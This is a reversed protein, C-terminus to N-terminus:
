CNANVSENSRLTFDRFYEESATTDGFAENFVKGRQYACHFRDLEIGAEDAVAGLVRREGLAEMGVELGLVHPAPERGLVELDSLPDLFPYSTKVM